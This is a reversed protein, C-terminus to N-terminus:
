AGSTTVRKQLDHIADYTQLGRKPIVFGSGTKSLIFFHSRTEGIHRIGAVRLEVKSNAHSETVGDDTFDFVHPGVSGRFRGGSFRLFLLFLGMFVSWIIFMAILGCIRETMTTGPKYSFWDLALACALIFFGFLHMKRYRFIVYRRMARYDPESLNCNITM